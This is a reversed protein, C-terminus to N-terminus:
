LDYVNFIAGFSSFHKSVTHYANGLIKQNKKEVFKATFFNEIADNYRVALLQSNSIICFIENKHLFYCCKSRKEELKRDVYSIFVLNKWLHYYVNKEKMYIDHLSSM